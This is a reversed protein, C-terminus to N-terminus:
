PTGRPRPPAVPARPPYNPYGTASTGAGARLVQPPKPSGSRDRRRSNSSGSRRSNSSGARQPTSPRLAAGAMSLAMVTDQHGLRQAIQLPTDGLRTKAEPDARKEVLYRATDAKGRRCVLMLPSEGNGNSLNLEAGLEVLLKVVSMDANVAAQHLPTQNDNNIPDVDVGYGMCLEVLAMDNQACAVHLITDGTTPHIATQFDAGHDCMAEITEFDRAKAATFFREENTWEELHKEKDAAPMVIKCVDCHYNSRYCQVCHMTFSVVSVQQRCNGCEKTEGSAEQEVGPPKKEPSELDAPTEEEITLVEPEHPKSKSTFKNKTNWTADVRSLIAATQPREDSGSKEAELVRIRDLLMQTTINFDDVMVEKEHELMEVKNRLRKVESRVLSLENATHTDVITQALGAGTLAGGFYDRENGSSDDSLDDRPDKEAEGGEM